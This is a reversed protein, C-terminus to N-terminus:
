KILKDYYSGARGKPYIIKKKGESSIDPLQSSVGDILLIYTIGKDKSKFDSAYGIGENTIYLKALSYCLTSYPPTLEEPSAVMSYFDLGTRSYYSKLQKYLGGGHTKTDRVLILRLGPNNLRRIIEDLANSDVKTDENKVSHIICAQQTRQLERFFTDLQVEPFHVNQPEKIEHSNIVKSACGSLIIIWTGLLIMLYFARFSIKREKVM